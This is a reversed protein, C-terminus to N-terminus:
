PQHLHPYLSFFLHLPLTPLAPPSKPNTLHEKVLNMLEQVHPQRNNPMYRAKNFIVHHAPKLTGNTHDEFWITRDIETFGLFISTTTNTTDLKNLRVSSQKVTVYSGFVKIHILDPHRGM